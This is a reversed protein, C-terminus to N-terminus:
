EEKEEKRNQKAHRERKIKNCLTDAVM